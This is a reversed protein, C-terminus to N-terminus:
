IALINLFHEFSKLFIFVRVIAESGIGIGGFFLLTTVSFPWSLFAFTSTGSVGGLM